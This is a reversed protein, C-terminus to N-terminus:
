RFSRWLFLSWHEFLSLRGDHVEVHVLRDERITLSVMIRVSEVNNLLKGALIKNVLVFIDLDLSELGCTVVQVVLCGDSFVQSLLVFHELLSHLLVLIGSSDELLVVCGKLLLISRESVVQVFCNLGFVLQLFSQIICCVVVYRHFFLNVLGVFGTKVEELFDFSKLKLKSEVIWSDLSIGNVSSQSIENVKM